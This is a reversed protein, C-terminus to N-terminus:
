APEKTGQFTLLPNHCNAGEAICHLPVDAGVMGNFTCSLQETLGYKHLLVAFLLDGPVCFRKSDEDHIPNFDTAVQKAFQSAQQRSFWFEEDQVQVYPQLLM